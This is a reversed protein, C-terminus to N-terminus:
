QLNITNTKFFKNFFPITSFDFAYQKEKMKESASHILKIENESNLGELNLEAESENLFDMELAKCFANLKKQIESIEVESFLGKPSFDYSENIFERVKLRHEDNIGNTIKIYHLETKLNNFNNEIGQLFINLQFDLEKGTTHSWHTYKNLLEVVKYNSQDTYDSPEYRHREANYIIPLSNGLRRNLDEINANGIKLLKAHQGNDADVLGETKILDPLITKM